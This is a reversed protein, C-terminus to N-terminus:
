DPFPNSFHHNTKNSNDSGYTFYALLDEFVYSEGLEVPSISELPLCVSDILRSGQLSRSVVVLSCVLAQGLAGAFICCVHPKTKIHTGWCSSYPSVRVKNGTELDQEKLQLTEASRLPLSISLVTPVQPTLTHSPKTALSDEGKESIFPFFPHPSPGHSWPVPLLPAVIVIYFSYYM